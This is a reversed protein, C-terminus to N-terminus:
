NCIIVKQAKVQEVDCSVIVDLFDTDGRLNQFTSKICQRFENRRLCFQEDTSGMIM